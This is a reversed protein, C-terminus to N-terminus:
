EKLLGDNFLRMDWCEIVRDIDGTGEEDDALMMDSKM